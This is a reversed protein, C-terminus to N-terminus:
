ELERFLKARPEGDNNGLTLGITIIPSSLVIAAQGNM